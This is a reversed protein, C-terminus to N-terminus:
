VIWTAVMLAVDNHMGCAGTIIRAIRRRARLRLVHRFRLLAFKWQFTVRFPSKDVGYFHCDDCANYRYLYSQTTHSTWGISKSEAVFGLSDRRYFSTWQDYTVKPTNHSMWLAYHKIYRHLFYLPKNQVCCGRVDYVQRSKDNLGVEYGVFTSNEYLWWVYQIGDFTQLPLAFCPRQPVKQGNPLCLSM